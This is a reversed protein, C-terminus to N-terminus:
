IPFSIGSLDLWGNLAVTTGEYYILGATTIVAYTIAAGQYNNAAVPVVTLRTPRAGTPLTLMPFSSGSPRNATNVVRGRISVLGPYSGTSPSVAYQTPETGNFLTWGNTPAISTWGTGQPWLPILSPAMLPVLLPALPVSLETAYQTVAEEPVQYEDIRDQVSNRNKLRPPFYDDNRRM